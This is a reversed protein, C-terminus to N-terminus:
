FLRISKKTASVTKKISGKEITIYEYLETSVLSNNSSYYYYGGGCVILVLLLFIIKRM